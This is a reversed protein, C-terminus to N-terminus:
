LFVRGVDEFCDEPETCELVPLVLQQRTVRLRIVACEDRNAGASRDELAREPAGYLGLRADLNSGVGTYDSEDRRISEWVSGNV